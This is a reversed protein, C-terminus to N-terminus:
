YPLGKLSREENKNRKVPRNRKKLYEIDKQVLDFGDRVKVWREYMDRPIAYVDHYDSVNLHYTKPGDQTQITYEVETWEWDYNCEYEASTIVVEVEDNEPM